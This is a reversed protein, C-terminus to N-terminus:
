RSRRHIPSSLSRVAEIGSGTSAIRDLRPLPSSRPSLSAGTLATEGLAFSREVLMWTSSTRTADVVAQFAHAWPDLPLEGPSRTEMASVYIRASGPM